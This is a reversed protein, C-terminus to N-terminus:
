ARHILYDSVNKVHFFLGQIEESAGQRLKGMRVAGWRVEDLGAM